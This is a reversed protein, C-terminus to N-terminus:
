SFQDARIPKQMQMRLYNQFDSGTHPTGLIEDFNTFYVFIKSQTIILWVKIGVKCTVFVQITAFSNYM